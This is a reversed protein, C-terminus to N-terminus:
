LVVIGSNTQDDSVGLYRRASLKIKIKFRTAIDGNRGAFKAM